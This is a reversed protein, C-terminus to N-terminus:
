YPYVTSCGKESSRQLFSIFSQLPSSVMIRLRRRFFPTAAMITIRKIQVIAEGTVTAVM